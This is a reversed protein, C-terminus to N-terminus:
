AGVGAGHALSGAKQHIMGHPDPKAYAIMLRRAGGPERAHAATM